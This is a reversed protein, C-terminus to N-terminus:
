PQDCVWADQRTQGDLQPSGASTDGNLSEGRLSKVETRYKAGWRLIRISAWPTVIFAVVLSFIMAASAGVPIPRMYPGMLGSVFGMPLLSAIVAFTALITPNGVEDVAKIAAERFSLKEGGAGGSIYRHINEVVAIADDVLIGISFILAFLSVRNITYGLVLAALLTMLIALAMGIEGARVLRSALRTMPYAAYGHTIAFLRGSAQVRAVLPAALAGGVVYGMVPLTAMWGLPALVLAFRRGLDLHRMDGEVWAVRGAADKARACNIMAASMDIGTVEHHEHTEIGLAKCLAPLLHDKNMQSAGKVAEHEIGKAIDRLEAVTKHKLEEYTHSM